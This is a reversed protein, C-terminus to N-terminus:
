IGLLAKIKMIIDKVFAIFNAVAANGGAILTFDYETVTGDYASVEIEVDKVGDIFKVEYENDKEDYVTKLAKVGTKGFHKLAINKAEEASINKEPGKVLDPYDISVSVIKGNKEKIEYEFEIEKLPDDSKVKFDVDFDGDDDDNETIQLIVDERTYGANELAIDEAEAATVAFAAVSMVLSLVVALICILTKKMKEDGKKKKTPSNVAYPIRRRMVSLM